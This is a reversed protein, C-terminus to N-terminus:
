ADSSEKILSKISLLHPSYSDGSMTIPTFDLKGFAPIAKLEANYVLYVSAGKKTTVVDAMENASVLRPGKGDVFFAAYKNSKNHIILYKAATFGEVLQLTAGNMNLAIGLKGTQKMKAVANDFRIGEKTVCLALEQGDADNTGGQLLVKPLIFVCDKLLSNYYYGVYHISVKDEINILPDIGHLIDKVAAVKYQYEEILIRM